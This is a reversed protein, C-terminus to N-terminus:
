DRELDATEVVSFRGGEDAGARDSQSGTAAALSTWRSPRRLLMSHRLDLVSLRTPRHFLITKLPNAITLAGTTRTPGLTRTLKESTPELLIRM